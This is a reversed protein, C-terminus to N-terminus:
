INSTIPGKKPPHSLCKVWSTASIGVDVRWPKPRVPRITSNKRLLQDNINSGFFLVFALLEEAMDTKEVDTSM